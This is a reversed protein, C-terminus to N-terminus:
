RWQGKRNGSTIFSGLVLFACSRPVHVQPSRRALAKSKGGSGRGGGRSGTGADDSDGGGRFGQQTFARAGVSFHTNGLTLAM